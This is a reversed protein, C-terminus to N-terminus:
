LSVTRKEEAWVCMIVNHIKLNCQPCALQCSSSKLSKKLREACSKCFLCYDRDEPHWAFGWGDEEYYGQMCGFCLKQGPSLEVEAPNQREAQLLWPRSFDEDVTESRLNLERVAHTAECGSDISTETPTRICSSRAAAQLQQGQQLQAADALVATAVAERGAGDAAPSGSAHSCFDNTAQSISLIWQSCESENAARFSHEKGSDIVFVRGEHRVARISSYPICRQARFSCGGSGPYRIADAEVRVSRKQWRSFISIGSRKELVGELLPEM